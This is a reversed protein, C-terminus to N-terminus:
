DCNPQALSLADRLLAFAECLNMVQRQDLIRTGYRADFDVQHVIRQLVLHMTDEDGLAVAARACQLCDDSSDTRHIEKHLRDRLAVALGQLDAM